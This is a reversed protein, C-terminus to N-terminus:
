HELPWTKKSCEPSPIRQNNMAWNTFCFFCIHDLFHFSYFSYLGQPLIGPLSVTQSCDDLYLLLCHSSRVGEHAHRDESEEGQNVAWWLRSSAATASRDECHSECTTERGVLSLNLFEIFVLWEEEQATAPSHIVGSELGKKQLGDLM